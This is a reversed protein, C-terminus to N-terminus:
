NADRPKEEDKLEPLARRGVADAFDPARDRVRDAFRIAFWMISLSTLGIGGGIVGWWVWHLNWYIAVFPVALGTLMFASLLGTIVTAGTAGRLMASLTSASFTAVLAFVMGDLNAMFWESPKM